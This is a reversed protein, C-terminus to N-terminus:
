REWNQRIMAASRALLSLPVLVVLNMALGVWDFLDFRHFWLVRYLAVALIAALMWLETQLELWKKLRTRDRLKQEYLWFDPTRVLNQVLPRLRTEIYLITKYQECVLFTWFILALQAGLSGTWWFLFFGYRSSEQEPLNHSVTALFGIFSIILPWTSTGMVIYYTARTTLTQYEYLHVDLLLRETDDTARATRVSPQTM